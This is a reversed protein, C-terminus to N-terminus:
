IKIGLSELFELSEANDMGYDKLNKLAQSIKFAKNAKMEEIMQMAELHDFSYNLREEGKLDYRNNFSTVFDDMLQKIPTQILFIEAFKKNEYTSDGFMPIAEKPVNFTTAVLAACL